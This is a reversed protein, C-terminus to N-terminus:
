NKFSYISVTIFSTFTFIPHILTLSKSSPHSHLNNPRKYASSRTKNSLVFSSRLTITVRKTPAHLFISRFTLASLLFIIPNPLSYPDTHSTNTSRTVSSESYRIFTGLLLFTPPAILDRTFSLTQLKLTCSHLMLRQEYM